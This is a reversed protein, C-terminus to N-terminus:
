IQHDELPTSRNQAFSWTRWQEDLPDNLSSLVSTGHTAQLHHSCPVLLTVLHSAGSQAQSRAQRDLCVQQPTFLVEEIGGDPLESCHL